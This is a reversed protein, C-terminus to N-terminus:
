INIAEVETKSQENIKTPGVSNPSSVTGENIFEDIM